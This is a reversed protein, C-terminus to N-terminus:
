QPNTSQGMKILKAHMVVRESENYCTSLTLIRDEENVEMGFNYISRNLLKNYFELKETENSFETALYGSETKIKYVSFVKWISSYEPTVLRVYHNNENDLWESKLTDKLTGFMTKDVRNHAYIINNSTLEKINNRYDLFVWGANNESKDYTHKLYFNNDSKQVVPYNINTNPVNVFAVTDSNINVLNSFDVKMLPVNIYKFYDSEENTVQSLKSIEFSEDNLEQTELMNSIEAVIKETKSNDMEWEIIKYISFSLLALSLIIIIFSIKNKM